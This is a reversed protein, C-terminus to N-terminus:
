RLKREALRDSAALFTLVFFAIKWGNVPPNFLSIIVWIPSTLILFYDAWLLLKDKTM